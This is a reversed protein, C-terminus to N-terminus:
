RLRRLGADTEMAADPPDPDHVQSFPAIDDPHHCSQCRNQFIRVVENSFTPGDTIQPPAPHLVARQRAGILAIALAAAFVIRRM